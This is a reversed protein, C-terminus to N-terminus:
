LTPIFTLTQGGTIAHRLAAPFPGMRRRQQLMFLAIVNSQIARRGFPM